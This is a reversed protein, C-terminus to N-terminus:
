ENNVSYEMQSGTIELLIYKTLRRLVRQRERDSGSPTHMCEADQTAQLSTTMRVCVCVSSHPIEQKPSCTVTSAYAHLIIYSGMCIIEVREVMAHM